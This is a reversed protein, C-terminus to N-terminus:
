AIQRMTAFVAVALFLLAFIIKSATPLKEGPYYFYILSAVLLVFLSCIIIAFIEDM